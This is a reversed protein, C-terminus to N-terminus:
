SYINVIEQIVLQDEDTVDYQYFVSGIVRGPICGPIMSFRKVMEIKKDSSAEYKDVLYILTKLAYAEDALKELKDM